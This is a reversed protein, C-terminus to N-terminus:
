QPDGAKRALIMQRVVGCVAATILLLITNVDLLVSLAFVAALISLNFADNPCYTKLKVIASIMLMVVAARIGEFACAVWYNEKFATFFLSIISIILFSPLVVGLTASTAGLIGATKYGIFTASNVSIPGPTSESIAIIDLIEQDDVWQHVEVAEKHILPIMAYGGGFTFAGIRFFSSFLQLCVSLTCSKM